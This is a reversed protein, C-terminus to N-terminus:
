AAIHFNIVTCDRIIYHFSHNLKKIPGLKFRMHLRVDNDWDTGNIVGTKTQWGTGPDKFYNNIGQSVYNGIFDCNYM